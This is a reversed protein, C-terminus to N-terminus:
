QLITIIMTLAEDYEHFCEGYSSRILDIIYGNRLADMKSEFHRSLAIM